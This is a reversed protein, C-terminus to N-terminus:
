SFGSVLKENIVLLRSHKDVLESIIPQRTDFRVLARIVEM